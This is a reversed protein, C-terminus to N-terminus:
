SKPSASPSAEESAKDEKKPAKESKAGLKVSKAEMTGDDKKWYQGRVEENAVIDAMTAASGDKMIKTRDTVMFTRSGVMFSKASMDVSAVKGRYPIGREASTKGAPSAAASAEPTPSKKEKAPATSLGCFAIAAICAGTLFPFKMKM